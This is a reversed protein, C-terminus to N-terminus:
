DEKKQEKGAETGEARVYYTSRGTGLRLIRGEETLKKLAALASSRGIKPCDRVVEAGTFRGVKEEAYKKVIEYATGSADGDGAIGVREELETYCALIVSLYYRVFAVPDNTEDNWGADAAELAEYYLDKTKEIEKEISIYRGVTYGNRYLLLLTLLRSMRGNGDNFPHICLFDVIFCPILILPDVTENARAREYAECLAEVAAPTEFPDPPTFRTVVTGDALTENIYNQVNKYKGGFSLGARRMLDRHLQLIYSPRVPIYEYSEHITNLVDRYGLIEQEDRNRPEAKEAFIQKMRASTTVIGEIKNSSETSNIRATLALRDLEAPKRRVYVDQRGKCEHIKAVLNWIDTPWTRDAPKTYDFGRM